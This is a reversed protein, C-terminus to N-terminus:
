SLRGTMGLLFQHRIADELPQLLGEINAVTQMAYNWSSVLSHIFITYPVQPQFRAIVSQNEVEKVWEAVNDQVFKKVSSRAEVVAGLYERGGDTINIGTNQFEKVAAQHHEPRVVPWTKSPDPTTTDMDHAQQKLSTGGHIIHDCGEMLQLMTQM